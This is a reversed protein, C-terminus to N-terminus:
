RKRRYIGLLRRSSPNTIRKNKPTANLRELAVEGYKTMKSRSISEELGPASQWFEMTRLITERSEKFGMLALYRILERGIMYRKALSHDPEPIGELAKWFELDEQLLDVFVPGITEPENTAMAVLIDDQRSTRSTKYTEEKLLSRLHPIASAGCGTLVRFAERQMCYHDKGTWKLYPIIKTVRQESDPLDAIETLPQRARSVAAVRERVFALTSWGRLNVSDFTGAGGFGVQPREAPFFAFVRGRRLWTISVELCEGAAKWTDTSSRVDGQGGPRVERLFFVVSGGRPVETGGYVAPKSLRPVSLEAGKELSGRWTEIVEFNGDLNGDVATGQTAVVIDTASWSLSPLSFQAAMVGECGLAAVLFLGVLARSRTPLIM